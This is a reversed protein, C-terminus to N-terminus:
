RAEGGRRDPASRDRGLLDADHRDPGRPDSGQQEPGRHGSGAQDPARRRRGTAVESRVPGSARETPPVGQVDAPGSPNGGSGPEDSPDDSRQAPGTRLHALLPVLRARGRACRSKITGPACDLMQAAEDVSYGEMDVLVIAARQDANLNELAAMIDIRLEQAEAPDPPRVAALEAARDDEPLPDAARVARRRVRDLCANVVVRHLWTTVASEGRFQGANRFASILADQLADAAEDPDSLTRLAVAWLRDRHRRFLEAFADPDGAVHRGILEKDTPADHGEVLTSPTRTTM